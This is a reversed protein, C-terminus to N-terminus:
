FIFSLTVVDQYAQASVADYAGPDIVVEVNLTEPSFAGIGTGSPGTLKRAYIIKDTATTTGDLTDGNASSDNISYTVGKTCWFTMDVSDTIGSSTGAADFPLAGLELVSTANVFKCTGGVNANITLTNTASAAMANGVGLVGIFCITLVALKLSKM